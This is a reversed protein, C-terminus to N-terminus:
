AAAGGTCQEHSPGYSPQQQRRMVERLRLGCLRHRRAVAERRASVFNEYKVRAFAAAVDVIHYPAVLM